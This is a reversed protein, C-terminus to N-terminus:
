ERPERQGSVIAVINIVSTTSEACLAAHRFSATRKHTLENALDLSARAHKRAAKNSETKLEAALFAELMRKADTKSPPVGDLSPHRAPDHVVQALSVLAERCLLGVAQFQEETKAEGLRRRIEGINRDVKPWGTPEEFVRKGENQCEKRLRVMLPNYIEGIFARRSQYTPLDSSWKGYWQWLDSYPNPDEIHREALAEAILERREVYQANVAQIRAGGTSVSVMINRQAELEKLLERPPVKYTKGRWNQSPVATPTIVVRQLWAGPQARLIQRGKGLIAEEIGAIGDGHRAYLDTDISLLLSYYTSDMDGGSVEVKAAANALVDTEAEQGAKRFLDALTAILSEPDALFNTM